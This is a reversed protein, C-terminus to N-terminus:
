IYVSKECKQKHGFSQADNKQSRLQVQNDKFPFM